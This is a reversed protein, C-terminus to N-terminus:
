FRWWVDIWPYVPWVDFKDPLGNIPISGAAVGAGLRLRGFEHAYLLTVTPIEFSNGKNLGIDGLLRVMVLNRENALLDLGVRYYLYVQSLDDKGSFRGEYGTALTLQLMRVAFSAAFGAQLYGPYEADVGTLDEAAVSLFSQQYGAELAM